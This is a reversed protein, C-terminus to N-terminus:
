RAGHRAGGKGPRLVDIVVETRNADPNAPLSPEVEAPSAQRLVHRRWPVLPLLGLLACHLRPLRVPIM